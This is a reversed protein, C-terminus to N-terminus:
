AAREAADNVREVIQRVVGPHAGLPGTVRDAPGDALRDYFFGEALLYAAATVSRGGTRRLRAIAEDLGDGPGSLYAPRVSVELRSALEAAATATEARSRGDSSGACALVVADAPGTEAIRDALAEIIGRGAGAPGVGLPPTLRTRPHRTVAEALDVRVHYGSGLLLPVMVTSGGAALRETFAPAVLEIWGLEVARDPLEQQVRSAIELMTRQGTVSRTGHAVLLIRESM